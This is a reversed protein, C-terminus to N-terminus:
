ERLRKQLDRVSRLWTEYDAGPERWLEDLESQKAVVRDVARLASERIDGSQMITERASMAPARLVEPFESSPYGLAAAVVEAAAIIKSGDPAELYENAATAFTRDILPVGSEEFEAIWDLADDNSFPGPGWAGM